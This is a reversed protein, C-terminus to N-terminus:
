LPSLWRLFDLFGAHSFMLSLILFRFDQGVLWESGVPKGPRTNGGGRGEGGGSRGPGEVGVAHAQIGVSQLEYNWGFLAIRPAGVSLGLLAGSSVFGIKM